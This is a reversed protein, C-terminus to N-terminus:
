AFKFPVSEEHGMFQCAGVCPLSHRQVFKLETEPSAGSAVLGSIIGISGCMLYRSGVDSSGGPVIVVPIDDKMRAAAIMAAPLAKDCSSILVAADFRHSQVYIEILDAIYERSALVYNMGDHGQSVGDCVDTTTYKFPTGGAERVGIMVQEVLSDLHFSGAHSYGANSHVLVLPKNLDDASIGGVGLLAPHQCSIRRMEDSRLKM